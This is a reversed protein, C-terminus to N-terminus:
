ALWRIRWVWSRISDRSITVAWRMWLAFFQARSFAIRLTYHFIQSPAFFKRKLIRCGSPRKCPLPRTSRNQRLLVPSAATCRLIHFSVYAFVKVRIYNTLNAALMARFHAYVRLEAAFVSWVTHYRLSPVRSNNVCSERLRERSSSSLCCVAWM